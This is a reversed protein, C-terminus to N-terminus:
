DRYQDASVPFWVISDTKSQIDQCSTVQQRLRARRAAGQRADDRARDAPLVQAPPPPIPPLLASLATSIWMM